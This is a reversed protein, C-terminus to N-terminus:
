DPLGDSNVLSSSNIKNVIREFKYEFYFIIILIMFLIISM